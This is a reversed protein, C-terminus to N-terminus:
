PAVQNPWENRWGAAYADALDHHAGIDVIRVTSAGNLGADSNALRLGAKVAEAVADSANDIGTDDDDATLMLWGRAALVRPAVAAAIRSMQGAGPAGFIACGPFAVVAALTDALGEVIVAVDVGDLDIDSPKGFLASGAIRSGKECVLKIEGHLRRYQIGDIAGTELDRLAMAPHGDPAYRVVDGRQRLDAPDLGRGKLYREGVISRRDLAEWRAPMSAAAAARGAEDQVRRQEEQQRREDLRRVLEPDFTTTSIGAIEAALAKVKPFDLKADLGAYGAVLAFIDGRASCRHCCWMGSDVNIAVADSARQGCASCQRTRLEAGCRKYKIGYHDLVATPKLAAAITTAVLRVASM